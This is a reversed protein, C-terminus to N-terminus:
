AQPAAPRSSRAGRSRATARRSTRAGKVASPASEGAIDDDLGHLSHSIAALATLRAPGLDGPRKGIYADSIDLAEAAAMGGGLLGIRVTQQIQDFSCASGILKLELDWPGLGTVRQLERWEDVLFLFPYRGPGFALVIGSPGTM